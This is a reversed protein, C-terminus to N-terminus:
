QGGHLPGKRKARTKAPGLFRSLLPLLTVNDKTQCEWVTFVQWGDRKLSKVNEQDRMRNREFKADWYSRRSKPRNATKCNEHAHWFCGHIFVVKRRGAFVIDPKGPLDKSHLRFRYGMGFLARRVTREPKTDKGRIRSMRESRQDVTLTDM